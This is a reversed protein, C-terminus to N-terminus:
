EGDTVVQFGEEEQLAVVRRIEADEIERLAAAALEGRDHATRAALLRAPRVLSGVQDARFPPMRTRNETTTMRYAGLKPGGEVIKMLAPTNGTVRSRCRGLILPRRTGLSLNRRKLRYAQLETLKPRPSGNVSRLSMGTSAPNIAHARVAGACASTSRGGCNTTMANSLQVSSSRQCSNVSKAPSIFRPPSRRCKVKKTLPM